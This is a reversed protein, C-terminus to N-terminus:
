ISAFFPCPSAFASNHSSPLFRTFKGIQCALHAFGVGECFQPEFRLNRCCKTRYRDPYICLADIWLSTHLHVLWKETDVLRQWGGFKLDHANPNESYSQTMYRFHWLAVWLNQTIKVRRSNLLIFEDIPLMIDPIDPHNFSEGLGPAQWTYSLAHYRTSEDLFEHHMVCHILGKTEPLAPVSTDPLIRLLRIEKRLSDLPWYLNHMKERGPATERAQSM